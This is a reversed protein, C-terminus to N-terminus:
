AGPTYGNVTVVNEKGSGVAKDAGPMGRVEDAVTCGGGKWVAIDLIEKPVDGPWRRSYAPAVM